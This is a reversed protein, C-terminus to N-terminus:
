VSMADGDRSLERSDPQMGLAVRVHAYITWTERFVTSTYPHQQKAASRVLSCTGWCVYVCLPDPPHAVRLASRIAVRLSGSARNELHHSEGIVIPGRWTM